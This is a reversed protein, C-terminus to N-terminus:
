ALCNHNVSFLGVSYKHIIMSFSVFCLLLLLASRVTPKNWQKQADCSCMVPLKQTSIVLLVSFEILANWFIFQRVPFNNDEWLAVTLIQKQIWIWIYGGRNRNNWLKELWTMSGKFIFIIRYNLFVSFFHFCCACNTYIKVPTFM